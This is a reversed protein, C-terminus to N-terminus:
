DSTVKKLIRQEFECMYKTKKGPHLTDIVYGDIILPNTTPNWGRNLAKKILYYLARRKIQTINQIHEMIAGMAKIALAQAKTALQYFVM